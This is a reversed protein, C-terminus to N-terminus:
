SICFYEKRIRSIYDLYNDAHAGLISLDADTFLNIEPNDALEHKRTAMVFERCKLIETEPFSTQRLVHVMYRASKEENDNSFINYFFDHYVLAFLLTEWCSFNNKFPILETALQELHALTHYHRGFGSYRQSVKNWLDDRFTKNTNHKEIAAFFLDRVM